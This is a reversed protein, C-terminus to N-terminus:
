ITYNIEKNDQISYPIKIEVLDMLFHFEFKLLNAEEMMMRTFLEVQSNTEVFNEELKHFIKFDIWGNFESISISFTEQFNELFLIVLVLLYVVQNPIYLFNINIESEITLNLKKAQYDSFYSSIYNKINELNFFESQFRGIRDQIEGSYFHEKITEMMLVYECWFQVVSIFGFDEDTLKSFYNEEFSNLFLFGIIKESKCGKLPICLGSRLGMEHILRISRQPPRNQSNYNAIITETSDYIRLNLYNLKFLSGEPDVYCRYGEKMLNKDNLINTWQSLVYLENQPYFFRTICVRSINKYFQDIQLVKSLEEAYTNSVQDKRKLRTLSFLKNIMSSYNQNFNISNSKLFNQFYLPHDKSM